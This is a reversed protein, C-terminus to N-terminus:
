LEAIKKDWEVWKPYTDHVKWYPRGPMGIGDRTFDKERLLESIAIAAEDCTRLPPDGETMWYSGGGAMGKNALFPRLVALMAPDHTKALMPVAICWAWDGPRAGSLAANTLSPYMILVAQSLRPPISAITAWVAYRQDLVYLARDLTTWSSTKATLSVVLELLSDDWVGPQPSYLEIIAEDGRTALAERFFAIIAPDHPWRRNVLGMLPTFQFGSLSGDIQRQKIAALAEERTIVKSVEPDCILKVFRENELHTLYPSFDADRRPKGTSNTHFRDPSAKALLASLEHQETELRATLPEDARVVGSSVLVLSALLTIKM